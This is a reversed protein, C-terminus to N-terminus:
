RSNCLRVDFKYRSEFSIHKSFTKSENIGKIMKFAKFNLDKTKNPVYIIGFLEEITNYRNMSILLLYHHLENLNLDILVPPTVMCQQNNMFVCKIALSRDFCLVLVLVIFIQKVFRSM